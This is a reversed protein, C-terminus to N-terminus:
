REPPKVFDLFAGKLRSAASEAPTGEGETPKGGGGGDQSGSASGNLTEIVLPNSSLYRAEAFAGAVLVFLESDGAIAAKADMKEERASVFGNHSSKLAVRGEDDELLSFQEWIGVEKKDAALRGSPNASLYTGHTSKLAVKSAEKDVCELTFQEWVMLHQVRSNVDGGSMGFPGGLPTANVWGKGYPSWLAVKTQHLHELAFHRLTTGLVLSRVPWWAAAPDDPSSQLVVLGDIRVTLYQDAGHKILMRGDSTPVLSFMAAQSATDDSSQLAGNRVSILKASATMLAYLPEPQGDVIPIVTIRETDQAVSTFTYIGEHSATLFNGNAHSIFAVEAISSLGTTRAALSKNNFLPRKWAPHAQSQTAM